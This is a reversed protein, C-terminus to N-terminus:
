RNLSEKSPVGTVTGRIADWPSTPEIEGQAVGALYGAPRAAARGPLGTLMSILTGLERVARRAKVEDGALAKKVTAAGGVAEEALSLGPSLSLKDDAPNDNLRNILLNGAQGVLPVQALLGKLTGLGFVASMWDDLYWGDDDEDEPGGRFMQAIAEAIWLPVMTGILAIYATSVLKKTKSTGVEQHIRKIATASTNGMMNFYSIFQTFMRAAPTGTELRSVDEPLTSGQTQRVVGDAYEIAEADSKGKQVGENYAGTWVIPSLVNDVASQLFYAHTYAWKQAQKYMGPNAVIDDIANNMAAVENSARNEMYPSMEWVARSAQVPHAIYSAAAKMLNSPKVLVGANVLGTIQQVTNSVNAFMLAMGARMRMASLIRMNGGDGPTPTEVQQTGSRKLWPKLMGEMITPDIRKLAQKFGKDNMVRQVGQVAPAMNSFLAVKDLHQSLTKLDLKLPRNAATRSMTFGRNPMPFSSSMSQNELEMREHMDADPALDPDGQAPVYGGRRQVGGPDVFPTATVESFYRGFVQRHAKQAKDKTTELLDWVGQAFDYHEKTLVGEDVMRQIFADWRTTDLTGDPNETAWGRGLLLKRKNSDNGTHLVAHMLESIGMGNDRGFTYGGLEPAVIKGKKM